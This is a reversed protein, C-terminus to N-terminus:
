TTVINNLNYTKYKFNWYINILVQNLFSIYLILLYQSFNCM